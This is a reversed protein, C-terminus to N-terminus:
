TRKQSQITTTIPYIHYKFNNDAKEVIHWKLIVVNAAAINNM